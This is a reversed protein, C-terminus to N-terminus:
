YWSIIQEHQETLAVFGDMEILPLGHTIAISHIGRSIADEALMFISAASTAWGQWEPYLAAQVGDEILVVSDGNSLANLMQVAADSHPPKNLIHLM